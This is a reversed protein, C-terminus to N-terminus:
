VPVIETFTHDVLRGGTEDAIFVIYSGPSDPHVYLHAGIDGLAHLVAAVAALVVDHSVDQNTFVAFGLQGIGDNRAFTCSPEGADWLVEDIRRSINVDLTALTYGSRHFFDDEAPTATRYEAVIKDGLAMRTEAIKDRVSLLEKM